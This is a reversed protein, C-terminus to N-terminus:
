TWGRLAALMATSENNSFDPRWSKEKKKEVIDEFNKKFDNSPVFLASTKFNMTKAEAEALPSSSLERSRYLNGIQPSCIIFHYRNFSLLGAPGSCRDVSLWHSMWDFLLM